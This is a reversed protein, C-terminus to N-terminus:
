RRTCLLNTQGYGDEPYRARLEAPSTEVVVRETERVDAFRFGLETLRDLLPMAPTGCAALGRPWYEIMLRCGPNDALCRRMGELAHGEGGQIDMKVLDVRGGPPVVDDLPVADVELRQWGWGGGPHHVSGGALGDECTFFAVRARARHLAAEHVDVNAYGNAMLNRRLLVQAHPSAEFAIVRGGGGVKRAFLLAYYGIHAGADVVVEGPKVLGELVETQFPEHTHHLSLGLTDHRDLYLYHGHVPVPVNTPSVLVNVRSEMELQRAEMRHLREELLAVSKRLGTPRLLWLLGDLARRLRGRM